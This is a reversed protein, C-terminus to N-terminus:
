RDENTGELVERLVTLGVDPGVVIVRRGFVDEARTRFEAVQEPTYETGINTMVLTDDPVLHLVKVNQPLRKRKRMM